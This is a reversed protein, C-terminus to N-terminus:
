ASRREPVSGAKLREPCERRLTANLLELERRLREIVDNTAPPAPKPRPPRTTDM